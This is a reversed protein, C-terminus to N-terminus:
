SHHFPVGLSAAMTAWGGSRNEGIFFEDFGLGDADRILGVDRDFALTM